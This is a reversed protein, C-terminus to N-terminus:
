ALQPMSANPPPAPHKSPQLIRSVSTAEPPAAEPQVEPPESRCAEILSPRPRTVLTPANEELRQLVAQKSAVSPEEVPKAPVREHIELCTRCRLWCARDVGLGHASTYATSCSPCANM